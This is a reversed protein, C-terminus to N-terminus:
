LSGAEYERQYETCVGPPGQSVRMYFLTVQAGSEECKIELSAEGADNCCGPRGEPSTSETGSRCSTAPDTALACEAFICIQAGDVDVRATHSCGGARTDIGHVLYWDEDSAGSLVGSVTSAHADCDYVDDGEEAKVEGEFNAAHDGRCSLEVDADPEVSSGNGGSGGDLRALGADPPCTRDDGCPAVIEEEPAGTACASLQAAVVVFAGLAKAFRTM